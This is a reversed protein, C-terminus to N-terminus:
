VEEDETRPAGWTWHFNVLYNWLTGVGIGLGQSVYKLIGVDPPHVVARVLWHEALGAGGSSSDIAAPELLFSFWAMNMIVFVTWQILTGGLSALHFRGCQRALSGGLERRDTFTWLSNVTFNSLVSLEIALALAVNTHVGLTTFLGLFAVNVIAGSAGVVCFKLFRATFVPALRSRVHERM